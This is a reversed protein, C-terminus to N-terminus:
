ETDAVEGTQSETDPEGAQAATDTSIDEVQEIATDATLDSSVTELCVWGLSELKVIFERAKEECYGEENLASWLVQDEVGETHKKYVVNCPVAGGEPYEITVERVLDSQSCNWSDAYVNFSASFALLAAVQITRHLLQM